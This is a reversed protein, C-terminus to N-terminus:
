REEPMAEGRRASIVYLPTTGTRLLEHVASGLVASGVTGHRPRGVALLGADLERAAAHLADAADGEATVYEADVDPPLAARCRAFLEEAEVAKEDSASPVLQEPPAGSRARRRVHVIRLRGELRQALLGAGAAVVPAEDDDDVGCVVTSLDGEGSPRAPDPPPVLVLPCRVSDLVARGPNGELKARIAGGGQDGVVLVETRPDEALRELAMAPAATIADERTGAPIALGRWWPPPEQSVALDDAPLPPAGVAPGWPVVPQPAELPAAQPPPIPVHVEILALRLSLREALRAALRVARETSEGSLIACAVEQESVAVGVDYRGAGPM